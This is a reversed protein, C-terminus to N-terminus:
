TQQYMIALFSRNSIKNSLTFSFYLRVKLKWWKKATM